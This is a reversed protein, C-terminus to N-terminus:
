FLSKQFPFLLYVVFERVEEPKKGKVEHLVHIFSAHYVSSERDIHMFMTNRKRSRKM